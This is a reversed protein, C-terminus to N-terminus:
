QALSVATNVAAAVLVTNFFFSVVAHLLNIRRMRTTTITVDSTQATMGIVFSFYLFDFAGPEKTEPFALGREAADPKAKRHGAWYLHAYHLAAMTHITFWGLAVSAFALGLEAFSATQRGNLASFLSVISIVVAAFTVAFFIAAPADDTASNNKLYAGTLVPIRLAVLALYVLFFVVAALEVALSPKVMVSAPFALAACLLGWYFPAHRRRSVNM